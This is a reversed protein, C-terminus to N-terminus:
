ANIKHHVKHYVACYWLTSQIYVRVVLNMPGIHPGDPASLVWTPGMNAGHVKSDPYKRAISLTNYISSFRYAYALSFVSFYTGNTYWRTNQTRWLPGFVPQIAIWQLHKYIYHKIQRGILKYTKPIFTTHNAQQSFRTHFSTGNM